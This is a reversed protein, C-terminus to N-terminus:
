NSEPNEAFIWQHTEAFEEAGSLLKENSQGISEETALYDGRAFCQVMWDNIEGRYHTIDKYNELDFVFDASQFDYVEMGYLKAKETFYQKIQLYEDLYGESGADCWFLVSYPPFFFHYKTKDGPLKEFFADTWATMRDYLGDTEVSSVGYDSSLYNRIVAAEGFVYDTEWNGLYDIDAAKRITEPLEVPLKGLVSLAADLPMYRFWAEYSFLYQVLSVPDDRFLYEPTRFAITETLMYQEIGIYYNRCKGTQESLALYAMLEDMGMGGIGIHLPEVGLERRFLEMDFNQTMSSGLILTDYEYNRVLGPGPFKATNNFYTNNEYRFRYFPDVIYTTLGILLVSTLLVSFFAAIWKKAPIANKM